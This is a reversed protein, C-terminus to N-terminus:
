EQGAGQRPRNREAFRSLLLNNDKHEQSPQQALLQENLRETFVVKEEKAMLAYKMSSIEKYKDKEELPDDKVKM